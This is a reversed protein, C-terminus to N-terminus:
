VLMGLVMAIQAPLITFMHLFSDLCVINGFFLLKELRWPIQLFNTIRELQVAMTNEYKTVELEAQIHDWLLYLTISPGPSIPIAHTFAFATAAIATN